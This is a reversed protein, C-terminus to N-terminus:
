VAGQKTVGSRKAVRRKAYIRAPPNVLYILLFVGLAGGASVTYLETKSELKILGPIIAAALSAAALALVVRFVLLQFETPNPIRVALILLVVAFTAGVVLAAIKQWDSKAIYLKLRELDRKFRLNEPELNYARSVEQVAGDLDGKRELALGFNYHAYSFDPDLSVAIKFESLADDNLGEAVFVTGLNNHYLASTPNIRIASRLHDKASGLDGKDRLVTALNNHAPAYDPNIRLAETYERIAGEKDGRGDLDLGRRNHKEADDSAQSPLQQHDRATVEGGRSSGSVSHPVPRFGGLIVLCFLVGLHKNSSLVFRRTVSSLFGACSLPRRSLVTKSM